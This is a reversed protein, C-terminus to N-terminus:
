RRDGPFIARHELAARRTQAFLLLDSLGPADPAALLDAVKGALVRLAAESRASLPLLPVVRSPTETVRAPSPPGEIIVHANTGSIGFGNVGAKRTASAGPWVGRERVIAVAAADWDVLPSPTQFNLSAPIEGERVALTAKILAPLERLVKRM